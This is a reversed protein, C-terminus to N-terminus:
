DITTIGVDRGRHKIGLFHSCRTQIHLNSLVQFLLYTKTFSPSTKWYTRNSQCM